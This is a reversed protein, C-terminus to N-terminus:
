VIYKIVESIDEPKQTSSNYTVRPLITKAMIEQYLSQCRAIQDLQLLDEKERICREQIVELPASAYVLVIGLGLQNAKDLIKQDLIRFQETTIKCGGRWLTAYVYESLYSRDYIMPGQISDIMDSYEKFTDTTKPKSLHTCELNYVETLHKALTSKGAKDSGEIICLM